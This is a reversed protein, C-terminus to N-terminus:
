PVSPPGVAPKVWDSGCLNDQWKDFQGQPLDAEQWVRGARVIFPRPFDGVDAKYGCTVEEGGVTRRVLWSIKAKGFMAGIAVSNRDVQPTHQGCGVGGIAITFVTFSGCLRNM